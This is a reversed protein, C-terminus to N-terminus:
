RRHLQTNACFGDFVSVLLLCVSKIQSIIHTVEARTYRRGIAAATEEGHAIQNRNNVVEDIRYLHRRRRAPLRTIGFVNFITILQTHRYHTGDTPPGTNTPLAIVDHSFAREFIRMRAPWVNRVRINRLSELEPDCYLAMLSPRLDNMRHGHANISDIAAQVVGNVTFEYVAYLQVFALGKSPAELERRFRTAAFFSQLEAFRADIESRLPGFM